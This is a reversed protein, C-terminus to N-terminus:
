GCCYLTAGHIYNQLCKGGTRITFRPFHRCFHLGSALFGIEDQHQKPNILRLFAALDCPFRLTVDTLRPWPRGDVRLKGRSCSWM